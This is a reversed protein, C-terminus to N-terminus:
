HEVRYSFKSLKYLFLTLAEHTQCQLMIEMYKNYMQKNHRYRSSNTMCLEGNTFDILKLHEAMRVKHDSLPISENMLAMIILNTYFVFM